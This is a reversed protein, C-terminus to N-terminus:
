INRENNAEETTTNQGALKEAERLLKDARRRSADYTEAITRQKNSEFWANEALTQLDTIHQKILEIENM